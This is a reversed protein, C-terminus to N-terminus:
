SSPGAGGPVSRDLREYSAGCRDVALAQRVRVLREVLENGRLVATPWLAQADGLLQERRRCAEYAVTERQALRAREVRELRSVTRDHIDAAFLDGCVSVLV